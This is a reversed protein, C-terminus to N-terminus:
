PDKNDNNNKVLLFHAYVTNKFAYAKNRNNNNQQQKQVPASNGLSLDTRLSIM